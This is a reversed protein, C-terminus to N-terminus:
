RCRRARSRRHVSDPGVAVSALSIEAARMGDQTPYPRRSLGTRRATSSSCRSARRARQREGAVRASVIFRDASDGHLVLSKEGELVWGAGDRRARTAVDASTTARSGSPMPSPWSADRRGRDEPCDGAAAGRQRRPAYPRGRAGGDGSLTRARARPGAGGDRDHDRGARRRRRRSARRLAPRAPGARCLAAVDRPELGGADRWLDQAQEFGYHDAMLRDVSQKLLTQEESLEFDM